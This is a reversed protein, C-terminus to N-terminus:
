KDSTPHQFAFHRPSTRVVSSGPAHNEVRVSVRYVGADQGTPEVSVTIAENVVHDTKPASKTM